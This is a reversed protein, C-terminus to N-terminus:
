YGYGGGSTSTSTTTTTASTAHTIKSGTPSVVYFGNM